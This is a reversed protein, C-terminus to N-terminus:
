FIRHSLRFNQGKLNKEIQLGLDLVETTDDDELAKSINNEIEKIDM